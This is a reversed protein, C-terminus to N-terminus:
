KQPDVGSVGATDEYEVQWERIARNFFTEDFRRGPPQLRESLALRMDQLSMPQTLANIYTCIAEKAEPLSMLRTRTWNIDRALFERPVRVRQQETDIIHNPNIGQKGDTEEYAYVLHLLCDRFPKLSFKPENPRLAASLHIRWDELTRIEESSNIASSFDRVYPEFGLSKTRKKGSVGEEGTEATDEENDTDTPYPRKQGADNMFSSSSAARIEQDDNETSIAQDENAAAAEVTPSPEREEEFVNEFVFSDEPFLNEPPMTPVIKQAGELASPAPAPLNPPLLTCLHVYLKHMNKNRIDDPHHSGGRGGPAVIPRTHRGSPQSREGEVSPYNDSVKNLLAAALAVANPRQMGHPSFLYKPHLILEAQWLYINGNGTPYLCKIKEFLDWACQTSLWSSRVPGPHNEQWNTRIHGINMKSLLLARWIMAHKKQATTIEAPYTDDADSILDLRKSLKNTQSVIFAKSLDNFGMLKRTALVKQALQLTSKAFTAPDATFDTSADRGHLYDRHLQELREQAPAAAYGNEWCTVSFFLSLFIIKCSYM